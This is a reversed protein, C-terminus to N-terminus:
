FLKSNMRKFKEVHFKKFTKNKLVSFCELMKLISLYDTLNDFIWKSGCVKLICSLLCKRLKLGFLSLLCDVWGLKINAMPQWTSSGHLHNTAPGTWSKLIDFKSDQCQLIHYRSNSMLLSSESNRDTQPSLLRFNLNPIWYFNDLYKQIYKHGAFQKISWKLSNKEPVYTM